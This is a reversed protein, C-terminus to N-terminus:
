LSAVELDRMRVLKYAAAAFLFMWGFAEGVGVARQRPSAGIVQLTHQSEPSGRTDNAPEANPEASEAIV